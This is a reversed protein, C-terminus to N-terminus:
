QHQHQQHHHQQHHHQQQQHQQQQPHQPHQRQQQQQRQRQRQKEQEQRHLRTWYEWEEKQAQRDKRTFTQYTYSRKQRPRPMRKTLADKKCAEWRARQQEERLLGLQKLQLDAEHLQRQKEQWQKDLEQQWLLEQHKQWEQKQLEQLQQERGWQLGLAVFPFLLLVCLILSWKAELWAIAAAWVSLSVDLGGMTWGATPRKTRARMVARALEDALMMADRSDFSSGAEFFPKVVAKGARDTFELADSVLEFKSRLGAPAADACLPLCRRQASKHSPPHHSM